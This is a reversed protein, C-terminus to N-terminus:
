TLTGSISTIIGGIRTIVEIYTKYLIGDDYQKTDIQSILGGVRTYSIERIKTTKAPTTYWCESTVIGSSRTIEYYSNEIINRTIVNDFYIYKGSIGVWRTDGGNGTILIDKDNVIYSSGLTKYEYLTNTEDCFCLTGERGNILTKLKTLTSFRLNRIQIQNVM